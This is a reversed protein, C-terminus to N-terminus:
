TNIAHGHRANYAVLYARRLKPDAKVVAAVAKARSMGTAVKEAVAANWRAEPDSHATPM